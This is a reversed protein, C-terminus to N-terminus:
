TSRIAAKVMAILEARTAKRGHTADGFQMFIHMLRDIDVDGDPWDTLLRTKHGVQEACVACYWAAAARGARAATVSVVAKAGCVACPQQAHAAHWEQARTAHWAREAELHRDLRPSGTSVAPASCTACLSRELLFGRAIETFHVTAPEACKECTKM